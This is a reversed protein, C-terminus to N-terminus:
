TTDIWTDGTIANTPQVSGHWEVSVYNAPRTTGATAGHNITGKAYQALDLGDVTSSTTIPVAFDVDSNNVTINDDGNASSITNTLVRDTSIDESNTVNKTVLNEPEKQGALKEVVEHYPRVEVDNAILYDVIDEFDAIDYETSISASPVLYHWNLILWENNAVADDIWGEIASVTTTNSITKSNVKGDVLYGLPQNFGDITRGTAYYKELVKMLEPTYYGNPWAWHEKGRYGRANLWDKTKKIEYEAEKVTLDRMNTAHHGGIGWGLDHLKDIQAETMKGSDGVEDPMVFATGRMGFQSMYKAGETYHDDHGDDFSMTVVAKDTDPVLQIEDFNVDFASSGEARIYVNRVTTWDGSTDIFEFASRPIVFEQWEGDKDEPWAFYNRLNILYGQTVGTNTYFRMSLETLADWDDWKIRLKISSKSFDTPGQILRAGSLTGASSISLSSEGSVYDSTDITFTGGYWTAWGDAVTFQTFNTTPLKAPKAAASSHLDELNQSLVSWGGNIAQLYVYGYDEDIVFTDKGDITQSSFGDVTINNTGANGATDKFVVIKGTLPSASTMTLNIAQSSTDVSYLTISGSGLNTDDGSLGSTVALAFVDGGSIFTNGGSAGGITSADLQSKNVADNADVGDALNIVKNSNLDLETLQKRAM